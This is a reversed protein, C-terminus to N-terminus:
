LKEPNPPPPLAHVQKRLADLLARDKAAATARDQMAGLLMREVSDPTLSSGAAIMKELSPEVLACLTGVSASPLAWAIVGTVCFMAHNRHGHEDLPDGAICRTLWQAKRRTDAHPSKVDREAKTRLIRRLQVFDVPETPEAPPSWNPMYVPAPPVVDTTAGVYDDVAIYRTGAADVVPDADPPCSPMYYFHSLGGCKAPDCPIQFATILAQRLRAWQHPQVPRSLPMVLRLAPKAPTHSYSSYWLRAVDGEALLDETVSVDDATGIDVDFVAMCMYDVDADRRSGGPKLAYPGFGPAKDKSTLRLHEAFRAQVASWTESTHVPADTAYLTSWLVYRLHM